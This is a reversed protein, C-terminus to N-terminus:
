HVLVEFPGFTRTTGADLHEVTIHLAGLTLPPATSGLDLELPSGAVRAASGLAAPTMTGTLRFHDDFGVLRAGSAAYLRVEFRLTDGTNLALHSTTEISGEFIKVIAPDQHAATEQVVAQPDGCSLTLFLAAATIGSRRTRASRVDPRMAAVYLTAVPTAVRAAVGSM